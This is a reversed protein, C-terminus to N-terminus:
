TRLFLREIDSQTLKTWVPRGHPCTASVDTRDLSELLHRIAEPHLRDGAKIAQHCAASKVLSAVLSWNPRSEEEHAAEVLERVVVDPPRDSLAAPVAQIV